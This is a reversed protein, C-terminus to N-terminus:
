AAEHAKLAIAALTRLEPVCRAMTAANPRPIDREHTGPECAPLNDLWSMDLHTAVEWAAIVRLLGALTVKGSAPLLSAVMMGTRRHVLLWPGEGDRERVAAFRAGESVTYGNQLMNAAAYISRPRRVAVPIRKSM